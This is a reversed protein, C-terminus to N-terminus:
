ALWWREAMRLVGAPGHDDPVAIRRSVAMGDPLQSFQSPDAYPDAVTLDAVDIMNSRLAEARLDDAAMATIDVTDFWGSTGDQFHESVRKAVFHRGADFKHMKYIGTGVGAARAAPDAPKILADPGALTYPLDPHQSPSTVVIRDKFTTFQADTLVWQLSQAVDTSTLDRGDHFTVDPRLDFYWTQGGDNTHWDLALASRLTGDDAIETLGDYVASHAVQMFLNRPAAEWVDHRAAGSLAARLTGGRRPASQASVGTAALLAAAAGSAFLARRDMRKM